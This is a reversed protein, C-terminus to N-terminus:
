RCYQSVDEGCDDALYALARFRLEMVENYVPNLKCMAPIHFLKRGFLVVDREFPCQAPVLQCIRHAVQPDNVNIKTLLPGVLQQVSLKLHELPSLPRNITLSTSQIIMM